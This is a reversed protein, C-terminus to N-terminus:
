PPDDWECPSGDPGACVCQGEFCLYGLETACCANADGPYDCTDGDRGLGVPVGGCVSPDSAPCADLEEPQYPPLEVPPSDVFPTWPVAVDWEMPPFLSLPTQGEARPDFRYIEDDNLFLLYGPFGDHAGTIRYQVPGGRTQQLTVTLDANIGPGDPRLPNGWDLHFLVDLTVVDATATRSVTVDAREPTITYEASVDPPTCPQYGQGWFNPGAPPFEWDPDPGAYLNVQSGEYGTSLGSEIAQFLRGEDPASPDMTLEAEEWTRFTGGLDDWNSNPNPNFDGGDWNVSFPAIPSWPAYVVRWPIATKFKLHLDEWQVPVFDPTYRGGTNTYTAKTTMGGWVIMQDGTWVGVHGYRGAPEDVSTMPSWTDTEPRYAAGLQTGGGFGSWILVDRGTWIPPVFQRGPLAGVTSMPTWTDFIPDYRAGSKSTTDGGWAIVETGTWVLVHNKRAPAGTTSMLTWTNTAPDYRAGTKQQTTIRVGGHVIMETGTWVAEHEARGLLGSPPLATWTNSDPDYKAGDNRYCTDTCHGGWIIMHTGTWVASNHVRGSPTGALDKDIVVWSNSAPNYRGGDIKAYSGGYIIMESGTWVATHNARASPAGTTTTSAWSDTAPDYRSGTNKPFSGFAGGWVIMHSGTWVATMSTRAGPAGSVTTDTWSDFLDASAPRDLALFAAALAALRLNNTMTM